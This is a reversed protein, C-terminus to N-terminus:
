DFVLLIQAVGALFGLVGGLAILIWEDEKFCPRLLDQFQEAPLEEMRERLMREVVAAREENFREDELPDSSVELAKREFSRTIKQLDGPEIAQRALPGAAAVADEVV